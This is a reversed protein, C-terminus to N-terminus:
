DAGFAGVLTAATDFATNGTGTLKVIGGVESAEAGYFQGSVMAGAAFDGETVGSTATALTKAFDANRGIELDGFVDEGVDAATKGAINEITLRANLTADAAVPNVTITVMGRVPGNDGADLNATNAASDATTAGSLYGTMAGTWIGSTPKTSAPMGVSFAEPMDDVEEIVGFFNYELWGGYVDARDEIGAFGPGASATALSVGAYTSSDDLILYSSMYKAANNSLRMEIVEAGTMGVIADIQGEATTPAPPTRGAPTGAALHTM